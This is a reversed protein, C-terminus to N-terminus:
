SERAGTEFSKLDLDDILRHLYPRSLHLVGAARTKNGECEQLTNVVLRRKFARVAAEYGTELQPEPHLLGSIEGPLYELEVSSTEALAVARQIVNELQRVNGPWDYEVLAQLAELSFRTVHKNFKLAFRVLFHQALQTIDTRRDRLGPMRLQVVNLRYLLDERFTGESVMSDLDRHTACILRIDVYVLSTSGLREFNREQLVRLLRSQLALPMDGIEDLFLTGGDAAEFHGRRTGIAGTFAGKEHGFLEDDILTEPLNGCSFAVFPGAARPSFQHIARALLEKGTGTEGTILATVDCAAIRHAVAFVETMAPASGILQGFRPLGGRPAGDQIQLTQLTNRQCNGESPLAPPKLM